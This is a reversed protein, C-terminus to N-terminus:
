QIESDYSNVKWVANDKIITIKIIESYITKEDATLWNANITATINNNTFSDIRYLTKDNLLKYKNANSGKGTIAAYLNGDKEYYNYMVTGKSSIHSQKLYTKELLIDNLYSETVYKKFYNILEEYSNFNTCKIYGNWQYDLGLEKESIIIDEADCFTISVDDVLYQVTNSTFINKLIEKSEEETLDNNLNNNNIHQNAQDIEIDNSKFNITGCAFLICLVLLIIIIVILLIILEKNNKKNEM